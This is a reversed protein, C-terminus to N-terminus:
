VHDTCNEVVYEVKISDNDILDTNKKDSAPETLSFCITSM